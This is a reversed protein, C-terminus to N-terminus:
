WTNFQSDFSATTINWATSLIYKRVYTGYTTFFATWDPKFYIWYGDVWYTQSASATSIDWATSLTYKRLFLWGNDYRDMYFFATWDPKFTIWYSYARGPLDYLKNDYTATSIDFAPRAM